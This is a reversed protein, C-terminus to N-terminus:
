GMMQAMMAAPNQQAAAGAAAGGAGNAMPSAGVARQEMEQADADAFDLEVAPIGIMESYKKLLAKTLPNKLMEPNSAVASLVSFLNSALTQVDKQENTIIFDFDAKIDKYYGEVVKIWREGGRKALQVRIESSIQERDEATQINGKLLRDMMEQRTMADVIADDVKRMDSMSGTFRLIHEPTLDKKLQPLVWELLFYRLDIGINEKKFDFVGTAANNQLVANTAPTSSPMGGGRMADYAFSLRDALQDYRTEEQAFSGLDRAETAVPTLAGSGAIKIVDGNRMDTLLNQLITMANTQFIQLASIEMSVRKQNSMENEREQATFLDEVVGVGLWRGDTKYYHFDFFPYSEKLWEGKHLCIANAGPQYNQAAQTMPGISDATVFMGRVITEYDAMNGTIWSKRVEGFREYVEYYNSSGTRSIVKGDEYSPKEIVPPETALLRKKAEEDWGKKRRIQTATMYHKQILFPSQWVREVTPDLAFRRLDVKQVGNATKKLVFSGYRPLAEAIENLTRAFTSSKLWQQFEKSLLFAGMSSEFDQAVLRLDKTDFNLMRTAVDCRYKSINFFLKNRGNFAQQNEFKSNLYLHIRKITDYQSFVYGPVVEPREFLFGWWEQCIQAHISQALM